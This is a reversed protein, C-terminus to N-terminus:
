PSWARRMAAIARVFTRYDGALLAGTAIGWSILWAMFNSPRRM